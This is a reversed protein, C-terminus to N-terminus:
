SVPDLACGPGHPAHTPNNEDVGLDAQDVRSFEAGCVSTRM